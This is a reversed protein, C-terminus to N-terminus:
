QRTDSILSRQNSHSRLRAFLRFITRLHEFHEEASRSFVVIDDIYCRAFHRYPRLFNDMRRQVYSVSNKFDMAAVNVVTARPGKWTTNMSRWLFTNKAQGPLFPSAVFGLLLKPLMARRESHQPRTEVCYSSSMAAFVTMKQSTYLKLVSMNTVLYRLITPKLM